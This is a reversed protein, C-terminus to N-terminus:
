SILEDKTLVELKFENPSKIDAPPDIYAATVLVSDFGPMPTFTNCAWANDPRLVIAHCLAFSNSKVAHHDRLCDWLGAISRTWQPKIDIDRMDSAHYGYAAAFSQSAAMCRGMDQLDYIAAIVPLAEIHTPNFQPEQRHLMDRLRFQIAFAPIQGGSEWRSVTAQDVRLMAALTSQNLGLSLRLRRVLKPWVSDTQSVM